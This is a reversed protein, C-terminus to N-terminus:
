SQFCAVTGLVAGDLNTVDSLATEECSGRRRCQEGCGPGAAESAGRWSTVVRTLDGSCIGRERHSTEEAELNCLGRGRHTAEEGTTLSAYVRNSIGVESGGGHVFVCNIRHLM